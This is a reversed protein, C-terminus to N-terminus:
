SSYVFSKFGFSHNLQLKPELIYFALIELVDDRAEMEGMVMAKWDRVTSLTAPKPIYSRRRRAKLTM